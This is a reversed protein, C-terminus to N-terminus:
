GKKSLLGEQLESSKLLIACTILSSFLLLLELMLGRNKVSCVGELKPPPAHPDWMWIEGMARDQPLALGLQAVPAMPFVKDAFRYNFVPDCLMHTLPASNLNCPCSYSQYKRFKLMHTPLRSSTRRFM